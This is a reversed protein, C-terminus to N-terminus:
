VVPYLLSSSKTLRNFVGKEKKEEVGMFSDLANCGPCKRTVKRPDFFEQYGCGRCKYVMSNTANGM